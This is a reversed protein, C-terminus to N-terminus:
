FHHGYDGALQRKQRSLTIKIAVQNENKIAMGAGEVISLTKREFSMSNTAKRMLFLVALQM